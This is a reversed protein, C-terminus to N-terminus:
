KASVTYYDGVCGNKTADRLAGVEILRLPLIRKKAEPQEDDFFSTNHLSVDQPGNRQNSHRSAIRVTPLKRCM